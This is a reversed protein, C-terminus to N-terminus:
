NIKIRTKFDSKFGAAPAYKYITYYVSSANGAGNVPIDNGVLEVGEFTEWTNAEAEFEFTPTAASLSTPYAYYIGTDGATATVNYTGKKAEQSHAAKLTNRIFNSDVTPAIQTTTGIFLKRYGRFSASVAKNTFVTKAPIYGIAADFDSTTITNGETDKCIYNGLNTLPRNADAGYAANAYFTYTKTGEPYVTDETELTYTLDANPDKTDLKAVEKNNYIITATTFDINTKETDTINVTGDTDKKAAKYKYDGTADLDLKVTINNNTISDGVEGASGGGTITFTAGPYKTILEELDEKSFATMLLDYLSMKNTNTPITVSGNKTKYNGFDMTFVLDKEFTIKEASTEIGKLTKDLNSVQTQLATVDDKVTKIDDTNLKINASMAAAGSTDSGIWDAIEKLTDFKTDADAVIEAVKAAAADEAITRASKNTDAGILTGLKQNIESEAALARTNEDTISQELATEKGTAREAESTIAASLESDKTNLTDVEVKVQASTVFKNDNASISTTTFEEKLTASSKNDVNGLGVQAKTVEHPNAKNDAHANFTTTLAFTEGTEFKDIKDNFEVIDDNLDRILGTYDTRVGKDNYSPIYLDDLYKTLTPLSKYITVGGDSYHGDLTIKKLDGQIKVIKGDHEGVNSALDGYQELKTYSANVHAEAADIAEQKATNAFDKANKNAKALIGDTDHNIASIDAQLDVINSSNGSVNTKLTAVDGGLQTISSSHTIDIAKLDGIEKFISDSGTPKAGIINKINTVQAVLGTDEETITDLLYNVDTCLTNTTDRSGVTNELDDIRKDFNSSITNLATTVKDNLKRNLISSDNVFNAEVQNNITVILGPTIEEIRQNLEAPEVLLKEIDQGAADKAVVRVAM